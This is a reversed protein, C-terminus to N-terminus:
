RCERRRFETDSVGSIVWQSRHARNDTSPLAPVLRRQKRGCRCRGSMTQSSHEILWLRDGSCIVDYLNEGGYPLFYHRGELDIGDFGHKSLNGFWVRGSCLTGSFRMSAPDTGLDLKKIDRLQADTTVARVNGNGCSIMVGTGWLIPRNPGCNWDLKKDVVTGDVAITAVRGLGYSTHVLVGNRQVAIQANESGADAHALMYAHSKGTTPDIHQVSGGDFVAAWLTGDPALRFEAGFRNPEGYHLVRRIADLRGVEQNGYDFFWISGDASPTVSTVDESGSIAYEALHGNKDITAIRAELGLAEAFWPDGSSDIALSSLYSNSTLTAFAQSYYQAISFHAVAVEGASVKVRDTM